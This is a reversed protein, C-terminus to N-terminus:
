PRTNQKHKLFWFALIDTSYLNRSGRRFRFVPSRFRFFSAPVFHEHNPIAPYISKLYNKQKWYRIIHIKWSFQLIVKKRDSILDLQDFLSSLILLMIQNEGFFIDKILDHDELWKERFVKKLSEFHWKELNM